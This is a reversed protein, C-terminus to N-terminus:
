EVHRHTKEENAKQATIDRAIGELAVLNGADDRIFVVRQEMWIVRGDKHLWRIQFSTPGTTSFQEVLWRRDDAHVLELGIEPHAYFEEPRYGLINLLAASIYECQLTPVLRYRFIIDPANDALQRFREESARLALDVQKRE